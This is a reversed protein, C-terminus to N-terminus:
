LQNAKKVMRLFWRLRFFLERFFLCRWVFLFAVLPWAGFWLLWRGRFWTLTVKLTCHTVDHRATKQMRSPMSRYINKRKGNNVKSMESGSISTLEVFFFFCLFTLNETGKSVWLWYLIEENQKGLMQRHIWKLCNLSGNLWIGSVILDRLQQYHTDSFFFPFITKFPGHPEFASKVNVM